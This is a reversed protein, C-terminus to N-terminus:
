KKLNNIYDDVSIINDLEDNYLYKGAVKINFRRALKINDSEMLDLFNFDINNNVLKKKSEECVKCNKMGLLNLM